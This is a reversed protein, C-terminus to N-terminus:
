AVARTEAALRVGFGILVVGTVRDVVKQAGPRRLQGAGRQTLWSLLALWVGTEVVFVLGFLASMTGLPAGSPIFGPLFAIFFIGIKPNFLNSVAGMAYMRLRSGRGAAPDTAFERDAADPAHRARLAAVGLWVLYVGGAIRLADYGIRSAPVLSSLGVAAALAWLSLGTLRGAATTLGGARGGRVTNRVVLLSDPGPAVILLTAVALFATLAAAV